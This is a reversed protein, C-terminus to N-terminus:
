TDTRNLRAIKQTFIHSIIWLYSILWLIWGWGFRGLVLNNLINSGYECNWFLKDPIWTSFYCLDSRRAECVGLVVSVCIPAIITTPIAYSFWDMKVKCAFKACQYCLFTSLILCVLMMFVYNAYQSKDIESKEMERTSSNMYIEFPNSLDLISQMSHNYSGIIVMCFLCILCKIVSAIISIKYRSRQLRDKTRGLWALWKLRSNRSVYNEWWGLSTLLLGLPITIKLKLSMTKDFVPWLWM